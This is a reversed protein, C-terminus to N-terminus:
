YRWVFCRAPVTYSGTSAPEIDNINYYSVIRPEIVINQDTVFRAIEDAVVDGSNGEASNSGATVISKTGVYQSNTVDYWQSILYANADANFQATTQSATLSFEFVYVSSDNPVTFQAGSKTISFNRSTHLTDTSSFTISSGVSITASANYYINLGINVQDAGKNLYTM